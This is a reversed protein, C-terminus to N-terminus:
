LTSVGHAHITERLRVRISSVATSGSGAATAFNYYEKVSLTSTKIDNIEPFEAILADQEEKSLVTFKTSESTVMHHVFNLYGTLSVSLRSTRWEANVSAYNSTEAKLDPNGFTIIHRSGMPKLMHYYLEDIGPARYGMAWTGRVNLNGTNYMLAVKPTLRTGIEQYSDLRLGAIGTFHNLFRHEHQAYASFTGLGKDLDSEPRVLTEHRLDLGFVTSSEETFNFIGKLEAEHYKQRKTLYYDGPLFSGSSVM